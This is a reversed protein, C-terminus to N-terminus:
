KAISTRYIAELEIGKNEVKGINTFTNRFGSIAPIEVPLLMDSTLKKYVEAIFTLKNNFMSADLGIDLQNSEEWGINRNVFSNLVVGPAYQNGLIYGTSSLSASNNYNGISNNGTIGYSGRIKFDDIWSIESMFAEESLRWGVSVAPFNGFKNDAGFRSSGERRFSVSFLYKDAFSYNLRALYALLSWSSEDSTSSINEAQQMFRIENNPFELG